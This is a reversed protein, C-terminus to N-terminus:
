LKRVMIFIERELVAHGKDQKGRSVGIVEGRRVGPDVTLSRRRKLTIRSRLCVFRHAFIFVYTHMGCVSSLTSFAVVAGAYLSRDGSKHSDFRVCGKM